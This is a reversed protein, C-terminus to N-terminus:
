TLYEFLSSTPVDWLFQITTSNTGTTGIEKFHYGRVLRVGEYYISFGNAGVTYTFPVTYNTSSTIKSTTNVIYSIGKLQMNNLQIRNCKVTGKFDGSGAPLTKLPIKGVGLIKKTRNLCLTSDGSTVSVQRTVSVLRDTVKVEVIYETGVVYGTLTNSTTNNSFTGNEITFKNTIDIWSDFSGTSTKQRYEVKTITNTYAGFNVNTYTGNGIINATTGIGNQRVISMNNIVVDAYNILTATKSINTTNSRSDIAKVLINGAVVKDIQMSVEATSSYNVEKTLSGIETRYKVITASKQATAKNGTGVVIKVNSYGKIFKQNNGTLTVTATNIDSYAFNSFVPNANTVKATKTVTHYYNTGNCVTNIVFKISLTNSNPTAAYHLNNDSSTWAFTYPTSIGNRKSSLMDTSNGKEIWANVISGSPNTFAISTNTGINYDNATTIKAIDYTTISVTNSESWLQSDTRKVRLQLNYSKTPELGTFNVPNGSVNFWSGGNIRGQVADIGADVSYNLKASNVTKSNFSCSVNAYRPITPFSVYQSVGIDTPIIGSSTLGSHWNGYLTVGGEGTSGNHSVSFSSSGLFMPSSGSWDFTAYTNGKNNMNHYADNPYNNYNRGTYDKEAYLEMYVNTCCNNIDQSYSYEIRLRCKKSWGGYITGM